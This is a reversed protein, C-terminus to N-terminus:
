YALFGLPTDGGAATFVRVHPGGGPGTATVIAPGVGAVAGVAVRVGGAFAPDYPCASGLVLAVALIGLAEATRRQRM